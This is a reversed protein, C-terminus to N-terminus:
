TRSPLHQPLVPLHLSLKLTDSLYGQALYWGGYPGVILQGIM